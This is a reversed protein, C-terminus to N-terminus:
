VTFFGLWTGLYMFIVHDPEDKGPFHDGIYQGLVDGQINDIFIRIKQDYILWLAHHNM